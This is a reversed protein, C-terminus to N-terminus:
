SWGRHRAPPRESLAIERTVKGLQLLGTIEDDGLGELAFVRQCNAAKRFPSALGELRIGGCQATHGLGRNGGFRLLFEGAPEARSPKKWLYLGLQIGRRVRM